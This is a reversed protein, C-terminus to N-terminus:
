GEAGCKHAVFRRGILSKERADGLKKELALVREVVGASAETVAVMRSVYYFTHQAVESVDDDDDGGFLACGSLLLFPLIAFILVRKTM